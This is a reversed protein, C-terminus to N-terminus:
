EDAFGEEWGWEVVEGGGPGGGVKCRKFASVIMPMPVDLQVQAQFWAKLQGWGCIGNPSLSLSFRSSSTPLYNPFLGAANREDSVGGRVHM